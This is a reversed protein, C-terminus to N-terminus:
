IIFHDNSSGGEGWNDVNNIFSGKGMTSELSERKEKQLFIQCTVRCISVFGVGKDKSDLLTLLWTWERTYKGIPVSFFIKKYLTRWHLTRIKSTHIKKKTKIILIKLYNRIFLTMQSSKTILLYYFFNRKLFHMSRVPVGQLIHGGVM